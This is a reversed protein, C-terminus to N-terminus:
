VAGAGFLINRRSRSRSCGLDFHAPDRPEPEPGADMTRHNISERVHTEPARETKKLSLWFRRHSAGDNKSCRIWGYIEPKTAGRAM